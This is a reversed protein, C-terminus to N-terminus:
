HSFHCKKTQVIKKINPTFNTCSIKMFDKLHEDTLRSRFNSKIFHMKSFATECMYTSGFMTCLKTALTKLEPYQSSCVYKIWFQDCQLTNPVETFKEKLVLDEQLDILEMQLAAKNSNFMIAAESTWNGKPDLSFCNNLIQVVNEIKKFDSFRDQFEFKLKKLFIIFQSIDIGESNDCVSCLSPFHLRESEIDDCLLDIKRSFCKVESLLDSVLIGKGQLKRNLNNMHKFIDTLFAISIVNDEKNLFLLYDKACIKDSRSLFLKIEELIELFRQLVCGKSLWRVNNYLQLDAYQSEVEDLLSKFQRHRTSSKARIYNVIRMVQAMTGELNSNLKCCLVSQHIICHYCIVTTNCKPNNRLRQIFGNKSGIMSPAGDTTVSIIKEMDLGYKEFYETIAKYIDEGCTTGLLPLLTLIEEVFQESTNDLYRVYICLQATDSIDCSEDIALAYYGTVSLARILNCHNEKALIETNRTNTTASLPIRHFTQKIDNEKDFLTNAAEIMCEKFIDADTFPKMHKALIWSIRMSAETCKEQETMTKNIVYISKSYGSSLSAIKSKRLNSGVQYKVSFPQHKTQYHRKMNSSKIIAVTQHCILCVPKTGIGNPFIFCYLDTWEQLFQRNESDVKRKKREM